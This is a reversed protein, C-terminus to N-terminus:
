KTGGVFIADKYVEFAKDATCSITNGGLDVKIPSEIKIKESITLDKLLEVTAADPLDGYEDFNANASEAADVAAALTKYETGNVRAVYNPEEEAMVAPAMLGIALALSLLVALLKRTKM